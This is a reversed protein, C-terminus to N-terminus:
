SEPLPRRLIVANALEEFEFPKALFVDFGAEAAANRVAEEVHASLAIAWLERGRERAQSKIQRALWMGDRNPMALDSILVDYGAAAGVFHIFAEAASEASTVFAGGHELIACVVERSDADDDVVLVRVDKFLPLKETEQERRTMHEQWGAM